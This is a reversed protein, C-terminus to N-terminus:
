WEFVVIGAGGAGGVPGGGSGRGGTGGRQGGGLISDGGSPAGINQGYGDGGGGQINIDGNTGTGGIGANFTSTAGGGNGSVTTIVQTGSSISSANGAAGAGGGNGITVTITGGPTLGSLWKIAAGGAGAGGSTNGTTGGGGGVVTAKVQSVFPPITFTGSALFVQGTTGVNPATVAGSVTLGGSVIQNQPITVNGTSSITIYDTGGVQIAASGDNNAKIGASM